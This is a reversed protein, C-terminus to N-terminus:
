EEIRDDGIAPAEDHVGARSSLPTEALYRGITPHTLWKRPVPNPLVKGTRTDYATIFDTM